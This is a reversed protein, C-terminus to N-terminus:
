LNLQIHLDADLQFTLAPYVFIIEKSIFVATTCQAKNGLTKLRDMGTQSVLLLSLLPTMDAAFLSLPSSLYLLACPLARAGGRKWHKTNSNRRFLGTRARDASTLSM